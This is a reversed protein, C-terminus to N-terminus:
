GTPAADVAPRPRPPVPVPAGVHEDLWAVLPGAARWAERVRHLPEETALWPGVKWSRTVQLGRHRLLALRPHAAAVGRPRGALLRSEDLTWGELADLVASLEAASGVAPGPAAPDLAAPDATPDPAAGDPAAPVTAGGAVAARYRELQPGDFAWHGASVSLATATLVVGLVCGGPSAAVAGVDTRYPPADPRFRRNVQPRFVRAPGFEPELATALARMPGRVQTEHRDRHNAWFEHTNDAALEALLAPGEIPWGAFTTEM